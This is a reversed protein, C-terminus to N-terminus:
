SQYEHWYFDEATVGALVFRKQTFEPCMEHGQL